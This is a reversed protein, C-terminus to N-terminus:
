TVVIYNLTAVWDITTGALGQVEIELSNGSVIVDIDSPEMAVDELNSDFAVGILTATTGNTRVSAVYDYSGGANQAPIFGAVDGRVTYLGPVVGLIFTIIVVPTANTTTASGFARNTLEVTVVNSGNPTAATMIGNTNNAITSGGIVDLINAAPVATGSDTVFSTPVSPPTPGSTLSKYIQSM